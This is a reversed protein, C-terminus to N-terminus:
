LLLELTKAEKTKIHKGLYWKGMKQVMITKRMKSLQLFNEILKRIDRLVRSRPGICTSQKETKRLSRAQKQSRM